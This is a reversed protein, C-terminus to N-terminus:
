LSNMLRLILDGFFNRNQISQASNAVADGNVDGIKVAVFDGELENTTLDNHSIVESSNMLEDTQM